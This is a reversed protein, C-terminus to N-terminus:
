RAHLATREGFRVHAFQLGLYVGEHGARVAKGLIIEGDDERVEILVGYAGRLSGSDDVVEPM